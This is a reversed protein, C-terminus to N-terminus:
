KKLLEVRKQVYKLLAHPDLRAVQLLRSAAGGPANIGQEWSRTTSASVNLLRAFVAQSVALQKRISAVEKASFKPAPAADAHRASIAAPRFQADSREGRELALAERMGALIEEGSRSPRGSRSQRPGSRVRKGHPKSKM